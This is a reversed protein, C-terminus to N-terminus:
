ARGGSAADTRGRSAGTSAVPELPREPARVRSLPVHVHVLYGDGRPGMEIRGGVAAARERMGTQGLGCSAPVTPHPGTGGDDAVELEVAEDLYRLRLEAQASPGAHKRVNTLSEQAIRYLSLGVTAPIERPAGLTRFSTPLGSGASAQVLEELQAVGRTSASDTPASDTVGAPTTEEARLAVLIRHLEDIASRADNEIASLSRAAKEPDRALVRRAAGAQVGMVSVHHAVVDHLERAIRLRESTVARRSSREREDDLEATRAELAELRRASQWSAEGFVYASGFYLLNVLVVLASEALYPSLPGVAETSPVTRNLWDGSVLTTVLWGLMAIAILLRVVLARRRDAGWAGVTYIALFLCIQNFLSEPVQLVLGLAYVVALVIAVTAPFRRRFALPLTLAVAWHASVIPHAADPFGASTYLLVSLVTALLLVGAGVADRVYNSRTPPRRSWGADFPDAAAVTDAGRSM